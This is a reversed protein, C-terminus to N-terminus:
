LPYFVIRDVDIYSNMRLWSLKARGDYFAITQGPQLTWIMDKGQVEPAPDSTLVSKRVPSVLTMVVKVPQRAELVRIRGRNYMHGAYHWYPNMGIENSRNKVDASSGDLTGITLAQANKLEPILAKYVIPHNQATMAARRFDRYFWGESKESLPQFVSQMPAGAKISDQAAYPSILVGERTASVYGFFPDLLGQRGGPLTALVGAHAGHPETMNWQVADIGDHGLVFMLLRVANDCLGRGTLIEIAGNPLRLFAPLRYNTVFRRLRLALVSDPDVHEFHDFVYRTIAIVRRDGSATEDDKLAEKIIHRARHDATLVIIKRVGMWAPVSLALVLLAFFLYKKFLKM